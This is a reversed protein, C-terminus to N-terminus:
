RLRDAPRRRYLKRRLIRKATGYFSQAREKPTLEDRWAPFTPMNRYRPAPVGLMRSMTTRGWVSGRTRLLNPQSRELRAPDTPEATLAGSAVAAELFRRGVETRVIILSSGSPEEGVDRYWPDGVAIDAFEGTHDACVRCRWPCHRQLITGWSEDYSMDLRVSAGDRDVEAVASGPWGNGRYRLSRVADSPEVGMADLLEVSGDSSPTGACFIGVLLELNAALGADVAAAKRAAAVDCPKGILVAPGAGDRIEDLRDCPSAPAYRSGTAALLEARSHSFVTRNRIPDDADAAIHVVGGPVQGTQLAHLALATAAGGSSAAWRVDEDAAHGEWVALVPGWHPLLEDIVGPRPEPEHALEHGPCVALARTAAAVADPGEIRPRLGEDPVDVM